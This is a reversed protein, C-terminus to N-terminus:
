ELAGIGGHHFHADVIGARVEGVQEIGMRRDLLADIGQYAIRAAVVRPRDRQRRRLLSEGLLGAHRGLRRRAAWPAPLLLREQRLPRRDLEAFRAAGARPARAPRPVPAIVAAGPARM